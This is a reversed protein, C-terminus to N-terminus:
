KVFAIDANGKSMKPLPQSFAISFLDYGYLPSILIPLSTQIPYLAGMIAPTLMQSPAITPVFAVTTSSTLGYEITPPFGAFSILIRKVSASTLM